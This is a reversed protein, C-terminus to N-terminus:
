KLISESVLKKLPGIASVFQGQIWREPGTFRLDGGRRNKLCCRSTLSVHLLCVVGGYLPRPPVPLKKILFWWVVHHRYVRDHAVKYFNSRREPTDLSLM